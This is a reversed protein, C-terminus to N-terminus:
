PKRRIRVKNPDVVVVNGDFDDDPRFRLAAVVASNETSESAETPFRVLVIGAHTGLPYTRIDGIGLDHTILVMRNRTAYAIIEPDPRARLATDWVYEADMGAAQLAAKLMESMNEDILFRAM